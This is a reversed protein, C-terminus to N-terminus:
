NAVAIFGEDSPKSFNAVEGKSIAIAAFAAITADLADPSDLLKREHVPDMSLRTNLGRIIAERNETQSPKSYARHPL